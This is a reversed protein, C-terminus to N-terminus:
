REGAKPVVRLSAFGRTRLRELERRLVVGPCDAAVHLVIATGSPDPMTFDASDGWARLHGDPGLELEITTGGPRDAPRVPWSPFAAAALLFVLLFPVPVWVPRRVGPHCGTRFRM